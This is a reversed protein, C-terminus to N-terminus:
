HRREAGDLFARLPSMEVQLPLSRRIGDDSTVIQCGGIAFSFEGPHVVPLSSLDIAGPDPWLVVARGDDVLPHLIPWDGHWVIDARLWGVGVTQALFHLRRSGVAIGRPLEIRMEHGGTSSVTNSADVRTAYVSFEIPPETGLRMWEIWEPRLQDGRPPHIAQAQPSDSEADPHLLLVAVKILWRGLARADSSTLRRGSDPWSPDKLRRVLPRAPVEVLRNLRENCPSCVPVHVGPLGTFTARAGDRKSLAVGASEVM